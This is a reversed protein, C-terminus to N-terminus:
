VIVSKGTGSGGTVYVLKNMFLLWEIIFSYRVTDITPVLLSFYPVSADYVFEPTKDNWHKFTLEGSTDLYYAYILDNSPPFIISLFTDRIYKDMDRHYTEEISAGISWIVAFTFAYMIFKKKFENSSTSKFGFKEQLFSEM